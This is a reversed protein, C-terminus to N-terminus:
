AISNIGLIINIQITYMRSDPKETQKPNHVNIQERRHKEKTM